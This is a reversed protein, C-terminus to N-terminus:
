ALNMPKDLMSIHEFFLTCSSISKQHEWIGDNSPADLRINFSLLCAGVEVSLKVVKSRSIEKALSLNLQLVDSKDKSSHIALSNKSSHARSIAQFSAHQMMRMTEDVAAL